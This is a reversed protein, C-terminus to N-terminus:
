EVEKREWKDVVLNMCENLTAEEDMPKLHISIKDQYDTDDTPLFHLTSMEGNVIAEIDSPTLGIEVNYEKATNM